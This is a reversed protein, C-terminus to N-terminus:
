EALTIKYDKTQLLIKEQKGDGFKITYHMEGNQYTPYSTAYPIKKSRRNGKIRPLNFSNGDYLSICIYDKFVKIEKITERVLRSYDDKSIIDESFMIQQQLTNLRAIEKEIESDSIATLSVLKNSKEVM